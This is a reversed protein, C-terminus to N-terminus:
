LNYTKNAIRVKGTDVDVYLIEIYKKMKQELDKARASLCRNILTGDKSRYSATKVEFCRIAGSHENIAVLDIPPQSTDEQFVFYDEGILYKHALLKAKMGTKHKTFETM